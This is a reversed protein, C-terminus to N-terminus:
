LEPVSSHTILEVRTDFSPEDYQFQLGQTGDGTGTGGREVALAVGVQDGAQITGLSFDLPVHIEEWATPWSGQSHPFYGLGQSAPANNVAFTDVAGSTRIFLWVCISGSYPQANVTQTWLNLTGEGDLVISSGAPLPPSLFKHIKLFRDAEADPATAIEAAYAPCGNTLGPVMQLGKDQGPNVSPEVDTAYDFLPSEPNFLPAEDFMLDPAGPDNGNKMGSACVGRTNHALHDVTNPIRATSDCTTDSLWLTWPTADDDGPPLPNENDVPEVEPDVMQTQIEQYVREGGSATTDLRVAVIVRKLDQTGPCETSPCSEDNEWVVMRYIQGTVDGSTFATPGPDVAAGTVNGGGFLPSGNYVIPAPLTGDTRIAYSASTIRWRPDTVDSTDSPIDTVAVQDYPLQKIKEMEQQLRNNAVQSQEARFNNRASAAVLSFVALSGLVVIVAAVVVEVITMGSESTSKRAPATM